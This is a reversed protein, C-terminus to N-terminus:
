RVFQQSRAYHLLLLADCNQLTIDLGPYLEIAKNKLKRKWEPQTGCSKRGGLGLPEQWQKPPVRHIAYGLAAAAGKVIGYNDFLVATTSSPINNGTFKPIDEIWLEALSLKKTLLFQVIDTLTTPMPHLSLSPGDISKTLCAFAGSVGPDCAIIITQM